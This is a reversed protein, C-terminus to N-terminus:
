RDEELKRAEEDEAADAEPDVFNGVVLVLRYGAM